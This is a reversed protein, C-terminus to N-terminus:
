EGNERIVLGLVLGVLGSVSLLVGAVQFIWALGGAADSVMFLVIGLAFAAISQSFIKRM